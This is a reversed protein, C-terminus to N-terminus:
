FVRIEDRLASPAVHPRLLHRQAVDVKAGAADEIAAVVGAYDLLDGVKGRDLEVLIDIDSQPDAEGRALSGFLSLHDVGRARLSMVNRQLRRITEALRREGAATVGRGLGIERRLCRLVLGLNRAQPNGRPGFMRILSKPPMDIAAGLREFGVSEKICRRLGAKGAEIDGDLLASVAARLSAAAADARAARSARGPGKRDMM